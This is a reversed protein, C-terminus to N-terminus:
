YYNALYYKEWAMETYQKLNSKNNDDINSSINTTFSIAANKGWPWSMLVHM